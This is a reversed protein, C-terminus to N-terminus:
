SAARRPWCRAPRRTPRRRVGARPEHRDRTTTPQEEDRLDLTTYGAFVTVTKSARTGCRTSGSRPSSTAWRAGAARGRPMRRTRARGGRAARRDGRAEGAPGGAQRHHEAGEDRLLAEPHRRENGYGFARLLATAPFKKKKDIHVYIVDHIDVHVRGVLRPVPHHAGLVAAPREPAHGGRVGRGALPAAPERHRARRRQHRVHRAPTM